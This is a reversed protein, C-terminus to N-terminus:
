KASARTSCSWDLFRFRQIDGGSQSLRVIYDGKCLPTPPHLMNCSAVLLSAVLSIAVLTAFNSCVCCRAFCLHWVCLSAM